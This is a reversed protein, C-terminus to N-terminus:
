KIVSITKVEFEIEKMFDDDVEGSLIVKQSKDFSTFTIDDDISVLIKGTSDKFWYDEDNIREIFYGEIKVLKESKDLASSQDKVDKITYIKEDSDLGTITNMQKSNSSPISNITSNQAQVFSVGGTILFALSLIKQKM